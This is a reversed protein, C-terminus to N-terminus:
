GAGLLRAVQELRSQTLEVTVPTPAADSGQLIRYLSELEAGIGGLEDAQAPSADRIRGLARSIRMSLDFQEELASRPTQIRPDMRVRLTETYTGGDVTLRVTYEGPMAYPGRPEPPTYGSIASIPYRRRRAPPADYHLDWAFRHMGPTAALVQPPRIWRPPVNQGELPPEPVDDSAFRRVLAGSGDLIELVVPGSPADRLWYNLIAGEPPNQGAPEDPPLPTDTWRNWRVRWAQAPEFLVVSQEATSTDIQRLPTIDDLIWFSRGHTGVVLDNDKIVLDRIATAPMNLRLSQWHAGDDISFYVAQEM